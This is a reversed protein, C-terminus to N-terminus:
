VYGVHKVGLSTYFDRVEQESNFKKRAIMQEAGEAMLYAWNGSVCFNRIDREGKKWEEIVKDFDPEPPYVPCPDLRAGLQFVTVGVGPKFYRGSKGRKGSYVCNIGNYAVWVDEDYFDCIAKFHFGISESDVPLFHNADVGVNFMNLQYKWAAHIHGVLNFHDSTGQTPYHTVFCKIGCFEMFLGAGDEIVVDFYKSFDEDSIPVDHNGRILTKIGNFRAVEPLFEVAKQYCVDGVVIVHDEPAILSNHNRVLTEIHEERSAFPRGLIQMRSEGLHWDATLWTKM